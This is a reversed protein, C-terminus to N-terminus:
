AESCIWLHFGRTNPRGAPSEDGACVFLILGSLIACIQFAKLGPSIGDSRAELFNLEGGRRGVQAGDFVWSSAM